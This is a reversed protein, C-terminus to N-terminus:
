KATTGSNLCTQTVLVDWHVVKSAHFCQHSATSSYLTEAPAHL